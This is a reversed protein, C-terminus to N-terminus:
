QNLNPRKVMGSDYQLSVHSTFNLQGFELRTIAHRTNMNVLDTSQNNNPNNDAVCFTQMYNRKMVEIIGGHHFVTTQSIAHIRTKSRHYRWYNQSNSLHNGALTQAGDTEIISHVQYMSHLHYLMHKNTTITYLSVYLHYTWLYLITIPSCVFHSCLIEPTKDM